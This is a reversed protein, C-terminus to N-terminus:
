KPGQMWQKRWFAVQGAQAAEGSVTMAVGLPDVRFSFVGRKGQQAVEREM